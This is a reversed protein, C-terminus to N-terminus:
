YPLQRSATSYVLSVTRGGDTKESVSTRVCVPAPVNQIGGCLTRFSRKQNGSEVGGFCSCMGHRGRVGAKLVRHSAPPEEMGMKQSMELHLGGFQRWLQFLFRFRVARKM